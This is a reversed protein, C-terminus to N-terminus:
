KGAIDGSLGGCVDVIDTVSTGAAIHFGSFVQTRQQRYNTHQVTRGQTRMVNSIIQAMEYRTVPTNVDSDGTVVDAKVGALAGAERCTYIGPYWWPKDPFTEEAYSTDAYVGGRLMSALQAYTIPDGPHFSGDEFGTVYGKDVCSYVAEGYWADRSVDSFDGAAFGTATMTGLLMVACLTTSIFRLSKKKM